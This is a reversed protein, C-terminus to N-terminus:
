FSRGVDLFIRSAGNEKQPFGQFNYYLVQVTLDALLRYNAGLELGRYATGAGLDADTFTALTADADVNRYTYWFNFPAVSGKGGGHLGGTVGYGNKDRGVSTNTVFDVVVFFEPELPGLGAKELLGAPVPFYVQGTLNVLAFRDKVFGNAGPGYNVQNNTHQLGDRLLFASTGPSLFAGSGPDYNPARLGSNLHNYYYLAASLNVPKAELNVQDALLYVDGTRGSFRTDNVEDVMFYGGNNDIKVSPVGVPIMTAYAIGEPNIDDDWVLESRWSGRGARWFPLPMKGFTLSLDEFSKIPRYVIFFRDMNFTKSRFFDGLRVFSGPPNPNEGSGIRLGASLRGEPLYDASFRVRARFGDNENNDVLLDQRDEVVTHDYRLLFNVGFKVPLGPGSSQNKKVEDLEKQMTSLDKELQRIRDSDGDKEAAWGSSLPFLILVVAALIFSRM